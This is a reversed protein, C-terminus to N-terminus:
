IVNQFLDQLENQQSWCSRSLKQQRQQFKLASVNVIDFHYGSLNLVSCEEFVM